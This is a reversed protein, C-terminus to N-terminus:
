TATKLTPLEPTKKKEDADTGRRRHRLVFPAVKEVDAETIENRGELSALARASKVILIDARMGEAEATIAIDSSKEFISDSVEVRNLNEAADSVRLRLKAQEEEFRASFAEPSSDFEMRRRAVTQRTSPDEPSKVEVCLGFRDLLQPRLEGEERNMTGVLRFRSQIRRSIGDRELMYEGTAAADLLIDTLYDDLLNIEDIYLFGGDSQELLGTRVSQKKENILKELDVAGLVRDETAGIPLNVVPFDHGGRSLLDGIARVATTKGTGKEGRVLVGGIQADVACLILALKLDDQGCIATFPFHKAPTESM